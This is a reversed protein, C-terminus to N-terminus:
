HDYRESFEEEMDRALDRKKIAQRKDFKRKPKGIALEAKIFTRTTYL